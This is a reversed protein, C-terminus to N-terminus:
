TPVGIRTPITFYFTSGQGLQSEVWIKGGHREVIKKCVALGIGTGSYDTRSHLRQFLVFIRDRYQLDIGIGNDQVSFLWDHPTRQIRIQIEPPEDRQFKIANSILNQFVQTLQTADGMVTPLEHYTIIAQCDAIAVRLNNLVNKVIIECNVPEFSRGRTGVRSYSLLDQILVQMRKAGDVAFAIFQDARDDLQGKYRRELLDLYSTVMRLPEQLDHSAVYAFQQLEENSRTLDETQQHLEAEARKRDSIDTATGIIRYIHGHDDPLPVLTTLTWITHADFDLQEEYTLSTRAQVCREYNQRIASGVDQGFAEEPTKGQIQAQTVGAYRESVPNFSIYRFDQHASVDIVFIAQETGEYVSKLFAEQERLQVEARKRDSIDTSMGCVAYINGESDFLPFKISLYTHLGDDLPAVEESEQAVRAAIVARDNAQFADAIDKPFFDHDTKGKTENRDLHFLDEYRRNMTIYRGQTDKMYIIATSNDLLANLRHESERLEDEIHKLNSIDRGEPILMVVNGTDDLVPKLTFDVIVPTGDALIHEAEFRVLEGRAAVPIAAQLKAQMRPSHEWWPTAWFPRGIVAEREVGIADLATRNAELLTGDPTMLGIFQFTGDFIARFKHESAIASEEALKRQTIDFRIALYRFPHGQEDLYPVITTDVWYFSGDKARNRIEGQWTQGQAITHWMAKFFTPPHYGSNIIRHNQGILESQSYQSIKCFKENVELITGHHDTVAVIAAQDLAQKYFELWQLPM